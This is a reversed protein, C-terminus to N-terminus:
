VLEAKLRVMPVERPLRQISRLFRVLPPMEEASVRVPPMSGFGNHLLTTLENDDHTSLRALINPGMEGGKADSGHCKACTKDFIVRGSQPAQAFISAAFFFLTASKM